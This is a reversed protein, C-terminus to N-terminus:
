VSVGSEVAAAVAAIERARRRMSRVFRAKDGEDAPLFYGHANDSIVPVGRLRAERIALRVRRGDYGTQRRIDRLTLANEAGSRLLSLIRDQTKEANTSYDVKHYPSECGGENRGTKNWGPPIKKAKM